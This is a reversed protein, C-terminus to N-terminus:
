LQHCPYIYREVPARGYSKGPYYDHLIRGKLYYFLCPGPAGEGHGIDGAEERESFCGENYLGHIVQFVMRMYYQYIAVTYGMGPPYAQGGM